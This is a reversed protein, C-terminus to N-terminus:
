DVNFKLIDKGWFVEGFPFDLGFGPFIQLTYLQWPISDSYMFVEIFWDMLPLGIFFDPCLDFTPM